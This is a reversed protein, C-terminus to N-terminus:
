RNYYNNIHLAYVDQCLTMENINDVNNHANCIPIIYIKGDSDHGHVPRVDEASKVMHGGYILTNCTIGASGQVYCIGTNPQIHMQKIVEDEWLKIWSKGNVKPDNKSGIVNWVSTGAKLMEMKGAVSELPVAIMGDPYEEDPIDPDYVGEVKYLNDKEKKYLILNMQKLEEHSMMKTGQTNESVNVFEIAM